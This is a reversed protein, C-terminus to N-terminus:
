STSRSSDGGRTPPRKTWRKARATSGAAPATAQDFPDDASAPSDAEAQPSSAVARATAQDQKPLVPEVWAAYRAGDRIPKAVHYPYKLLYIADDFGDILADVGDRRTGVLTKLEAPLM